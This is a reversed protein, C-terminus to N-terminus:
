GVRVSMYQANSALFDDLSGLIYDISCHACTVKSSKSVLPLSSVTEAVAHFRFLLLFIRTCPSLFLRVINVAFYFFSSCVYLFM